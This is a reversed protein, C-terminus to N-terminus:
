VEKSYPTEGKDLSSM